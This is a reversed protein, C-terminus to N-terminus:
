SQERLNYIKGNIEFLSCVGSIYFVFSFDFPFSEWYGSEQKTQQQM